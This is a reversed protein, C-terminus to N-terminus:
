ITRFGTERNEWTLGGDKSIRIEGGGIGVLTREDGPDIWFERTLAAGEDMQRWLRGGDKSA